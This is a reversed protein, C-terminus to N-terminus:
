PAKAAIVEIEVLFNPGALGAVQFASRAVTAPNDANGFFQKFGENVGAFDMKGLKPDPAIFLTMKFIDSMAYGHAALIGKIKTLASVTQTKSDGFDAMIMSPGMPKAPDIPSALQGSLYLLDSGAKVKAGQLIIAPGAATPPSKFREVAQAHVQTALVLAPMAALTLRTKM